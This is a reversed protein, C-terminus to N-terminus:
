TIVGFMSIVIIIYMINFIVDMIIIFLEIIISFFLEAHFFFAAATVRLSTNARTNGLVEACLKSM